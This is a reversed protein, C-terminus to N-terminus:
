PRHEKGSFHFTALKRVNNGDFGRIPKNSLTLSSPTPTNLLKPGFSTLKSESTEAGLVYYALFDKNEPNDISKYYIWIKDDSESAFISFDMAATERSDSVSMLPIYKAPGDMDSISALFLASDGRLVILIDISTNALKSSGINQINKEYKSLNQREIYKNYDKIYKEHSQEAALSTSIISIVFFLTPALSKATPM